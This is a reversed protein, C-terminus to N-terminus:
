TLLSPLRRFRAQLPQSISVSSTQIAELTQATLYYYDNSSLGLVAHAIPLMALVTEFM